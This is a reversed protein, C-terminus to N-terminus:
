GCASCWSRLEWRITASGIDNLASPPRRQALHAIPLRLEVWNERRRAEVELLGSRGCRTKKKEQRPHLPQGRGPDRPARGADLREEWDAHMM